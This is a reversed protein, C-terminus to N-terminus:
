KEKLKYEAPVEFAAPAVSGSEIGTVTTTMWMLAGPPAAPGEDQKDKEEDQKKDKKGFLGGLAKAAM